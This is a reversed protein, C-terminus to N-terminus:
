SCSIKLIRFLRVLRAGGKKIKPNKNKKFVSVDNRVCKVGSSASSLVSLM